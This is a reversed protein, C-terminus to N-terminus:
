TPLEEPNSETAQSLLCARGPLRLRPHRPRHAAFQTPLAAQLLEAHELVLEGAEADDQELLELLRARVSAFRATDVGGASASPAAAALAGELAAVLGVAAAGFRRDGALVEARRAKACRASSWNPRPRCRRPASTAPWARPPTRSASPPAPTAPRWRRACSRWRTASGAVFKNLMSLYLARKGLVRRLGHGRGPRRHGAAARSRRWPRPRPRPTRPRRARPVWKLLMAWLESPEIPKGVHDNM